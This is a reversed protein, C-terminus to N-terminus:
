RVVRLKQKPELAEVAERTGEARKAIYVKRTVKSGPAHGLLQGIKKDDVEGDLWTAVTHRLVHPTVRERLPTEKSWLGVKEATANFGGKIDAVKRGWYEIVYKSEAKEKYARLVARLTGSMVVVARGKKYHKSMPDIADTSRFDIIGNDLDVQDWKLELIAGKRAGTYNAMIIFLKIHGQAADILAESEERSLVRDRPASRNPRWIVFEDRDPGLSFHGKTRGWSLATQLIVMETWVTDPARGAKFRAKAYDRCIDDTIALPMLHGFWPKLNKDYRYEYDDTPKQDAKKSEIFLEWIQQVTLNAGVQAKLLGDVFSILATRATTEPKMPIPKRAADYLRIRSRGGTESSRTVACAQGKLEQLGYGRYEFCKRAM